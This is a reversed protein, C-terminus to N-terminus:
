EGAVDRLATKIDADSIGPHREQYRKATARILAALESISPKGKGRLRRCYGIAQRTNMRAACIQNAASVIAKEDPKGDDKLFRGLEALITPRSGAAVNRSELDVLRRALADELPLVKYVEPADSDPGKYGRKFKKGRGKAGLIWEFRESEFNLMWYVRKLLIYNQRGRQTQAWKRKKAYPAYDKETYKPKRGRKGKPKESINESIRKTERQAPTKSVNESFLSEFGPLAKETPNM